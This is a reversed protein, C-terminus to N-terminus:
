DESNIKQKNNEIIDGKNLMEGKHNLFQILQEESYKEYLDDRISRLMLLNTSFIRYINKDLKGIYSALHKDIKDLKKNMLNEIQSDILIENQYENELHKKLAREVEFNIKSKNKKSLSKIKEHLSEDIQITKINKSLIYRRCNTKMKM